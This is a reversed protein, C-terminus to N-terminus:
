LSDFAQKPTMIRLSALTANSSIETPSLPGTINGTKVDLRYWGDTDGDYVRDVEALIINTDWGLALVTGDFIGARSNDGKKFITYRQTEDFLNLYFKGVITKNAFGFPDQDVCSAVLVSIALALAARIRRTGSM